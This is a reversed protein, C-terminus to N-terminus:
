PRPAVSRGHNGDTACAVTMEAAVARVWPAYLDAVDVPRALRRGAEELVQRIVAYSGGL